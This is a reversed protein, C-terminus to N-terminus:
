SKRKQERDHHERRDIAIQQTLEKVKTELDSIRMANNFARLLLVGIFFLYVFNVPAQFGLFDSLYSAIQPFLALIVILVPLFVWFLADEIRMKSRKISLLMIALLCFAFVLLVAGLAFGM